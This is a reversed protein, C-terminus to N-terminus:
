NKKLEDIEITLAAVQKKLDNAEKEAMRARTLSAQEKTSAFSLDGMLKTVNAANTTANEKL